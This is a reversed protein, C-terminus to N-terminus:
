IPACSMDNGRNLMIDNQVVNTANTTIIADNKTASPGGIEPQVAYAGRLATPPSAPGPNAKPWSRQAVNFAINQTAENSPASFKMAVDRSKRVLPMDGARM